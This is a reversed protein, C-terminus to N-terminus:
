SRKPIVFNILKNPIYIIKKIESDEFYRALNPLAKAQAITEEKELTQELHLTARVKGNIQIVWAKPTYELAQPCVQPEPVLHIAEGFGLQQWLYSTIHPTM